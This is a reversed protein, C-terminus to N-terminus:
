WGNRRNNTRTPFQGESFVSRNDCVPCRVSHRGSNSRSESMHIIKENSYCGNCVYIIQNDQEYQFTQGNWKLKEKFKLSEELEVIRDRMDNVTGKLDITQSRLEIAAERLEINTEKKTLEQISKALNVVGTALQIGTKIDNIM